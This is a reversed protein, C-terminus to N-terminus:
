REDTRGSRTTSGATRKAPRSSQYGTADRGGGDGERRRRRLGGPEDSGLLRAIALNNTTIGDVGWGVLDNARGLRDVTWAMVLLRREGFWAVAEADLLTARITVGDISAMTAPDDRPAELERESGISLLRYVSPLRGAFAELVGPDRSAVIVRRGEGNAWVFGMVRDVYRPDSEKLDLKVAAAGATERWVQALSPGRFVFSSYWRHPSDHAAYLRGDLSVVDIEIVDVGRELATRTTAISDGANHAIAFVGAYADLLDGDLGDLGVERFFRRPSVGATLREAREPEFVLIWLVWGSLALTAVAAAVIAGHLTAGVRRAYRRVDMHGLTAQKGAGTGHDFGDARRGSADGRGSGPM